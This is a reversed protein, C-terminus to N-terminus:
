KITAIRQCYDDWAAGEDFRFVRTEVVADIDHNYLFTIHSPKGNDATEHFALVVSMFPFRGQSRYNAIVEYQCDLKLTALM